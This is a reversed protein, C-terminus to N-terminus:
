PMTLIPLGFCERVLRALAAERAAAYAVPTLRDRFASLEDDVEIELARRESPQLRERAMALLEADFDVLRNVLARRAEGRLGRGSARAADLERSIRDM